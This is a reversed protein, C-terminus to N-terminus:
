DRIAPKPMPLPALRGDMAANKLLLVRQVLREFDADVV